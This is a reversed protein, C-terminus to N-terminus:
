VEDGGQKQPNLKRDQATHDKCGRQPKFDGDSRWMTLSKLDKKPVLVKFYINLQM